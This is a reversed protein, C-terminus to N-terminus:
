LLEDTIQQSTPRKKRQAVDDRGKILLSLGIALLAFGGLVGLASVGSNETSIPPMSERELDTKSPQIVQAKTEFQFSM